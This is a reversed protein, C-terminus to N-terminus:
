RYLFLNEAYGCPEDLCEEMRVVLRYRTNPFLVARVKPFEGYSTDDAIFKGTDDRLEFDLDSCDNDCAGVITYERTTSVTINITQSEGEELFDSYATHSAQLYPFNSAVHNELNRLATRSQALAVGFFLIVLVSVFRMKQRMCEEMTTFGCGTPKNKNLGITLIGIEFDGGKQRCKIAMSLLGVGVKPVSGSIVQYFDSSFM